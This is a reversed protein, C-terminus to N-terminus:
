FSRPLLNLKNVFVGKQPNLEVLAASMDNKGLGKNPSGCYAAKTVGHEMFSFVHVHGLALYDFGSAEIEEPRILSSFSQLDRDVCYGHTVGVYWGDEPVSPIRDLPKHGPHHEVIGRGWVTVGLDKFVCTSGADARLFFVNESAEEPNYRKYISYEALCDHNGAIMVLPCLLREFQADVFNLCEVKIRNHDFLDGALLILDVNQEISADIAAELGIQASSKEAGSGIENDLHIDSIHLIRIQKKTM